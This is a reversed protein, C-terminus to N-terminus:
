TVICEERLYSWRGIPVTVCIEWPHSVYGLVGRDAYLETVFELGVIGM